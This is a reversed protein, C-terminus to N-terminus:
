AGPGIPVGAGVGLIVALVYAVATKRLTDALGGLALAATSGFSRAVASPAPVFLPDVWGARALGEWTALAVALSAGQILVVRATGAKMGDVAPGSARAPQGGRREGRHRRAHLDSSCVDSSWDCKFRTHRRRSSFFFILHLLM